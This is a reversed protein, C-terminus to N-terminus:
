ITLHVGALWAFPVSAVLLTPATKWKSGPMRVQVISSLSAELARQGVESWQPVSILGQTEDNCASEM